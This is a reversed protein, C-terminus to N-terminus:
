IPQCTVRLFNIPKMCIEHYSGGIRLSQRVTSVNCLILISSKKSTYKFIGSQEWNSDNTLTLITGNCCWLCSVYLWSGQVEFLFKHSWPVKRSNERSGLSQKNLVYMSIHVSGVTSQIYKSTSNSNVLKNKRNLTEQQLPVLFLPNQHLSDWLANIIQKNAPLCQATQFSRLSSLNM